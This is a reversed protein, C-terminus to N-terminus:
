KKLVVRLRKKLQGLFDPGRLAFGKGSIRVVKEAGQFLPANQSPHPKKKTKM